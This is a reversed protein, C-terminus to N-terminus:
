RVIGQSPLETQGVVGLRGLRTRPKIQGRGARVEEAGATGPETLSNREAALIQRVAIAFAAIYYLFWQYQISGFFSCIIYAAFAAQLAISLYHSERMRARAAADLGAEPRLAVATEREARRMSRLPSLMLVLYALLGALGLEAAIELYANHAMKEKLSYIHYNGIGVGIVTHHAAVTMARELLERREQSSGTKDEDSALITSLRDSYQSPVLLLFAGCVLVVTIVAAGRKSRGMKWLLVAGSALLCLFGGRSFTAVVGMGMLVACAAYFLRMVGQSNMALAAALPLMLNLALALDNPNGALGVMLGKIRPGNNAFHGAAYSYIANMAMVTGCIVVLKQISRLRARTDLLNILLFFVCVVKAYVDKLLQWGESPSASIPLFLVGLGLILLVMKLETTWVTLPEGRSLRGLVYALLAPVAVIKVLPFEGFVGPFVENPRAYLLLTFVWLAGFAFPLSGAAPPLTGKPQRGAWAAQRPTIIQENVASM